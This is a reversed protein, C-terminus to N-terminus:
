RVISFQMAKTRRYLAARLFALTNPTLIEWNKALRASAAGSPRKQDSAVRSAANTIADGGISGLLIAQRHEAGANPIPTRVADTAGQLIRLANCVLLAM